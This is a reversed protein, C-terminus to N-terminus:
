RSLIQHLHSYQIAVYEGEFWCENGSYTLHANSALEAATTLKIGHASYKATPEATAFAVIQVSPSKTAAKIWKVMFSKRASPGLEAMEILADVTVDAVTALASLAKIWTTFRENIDDGDLHPAYGGQQLYHPTRITLRVDEEANALDQTLRHKEDQNDRSDSLEIMERLARDVKMVIYWPEEVFTYLIDTNHLDESPILGIPTDDAPFLAFPRGFDTATDSGTACITSLGRSPYDPNAKDIVIKYFDGVNRAPRYNTMRPVKLAIQDRDFRGGKVGRLLRPRGNKQYFRYQVPAHQKIWEVLHQHDDLHQEFLSQITM